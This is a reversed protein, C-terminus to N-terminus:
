KKCNQVHKRRGSYTCFEKPCKPCKFFGLRDGAVKPHEQKLHINLETRQRFDQGCKECVFPREKNKCTLLHDKLKNSQSFVKNCRTCMLGTNMGHKDHQHKLVAALEDHGFSCTPIVCYNCWINLHLTRFHTWMSNRDTSIFSCDYEKGGEVVRGSCSFNEKHKQGIHLDLYQKNEFVKGCVCQLALLKISKRHALKPAPQTSTDATLTSAVGTQSRTTMQSPATAMTTTTTTVTMSSEGTTATEATTVTESTGTDTKSKKPSPECGKESPLSQKRSHGTVITDDQPLPVDETMETEATGFKFNCSRGVSDAAELHEIMSKLGSKLLSKKPVLQSLQKLGQLANSVKKLMPEGKRIIEAVCQPFFPTFHNWGNYLLRIKFDEIPINRDEPICYEVDFTYYPTSTGSIHETPRILLIPEGLVLQAAAVYFFIGAKMDKQAILDLVLEKYSRTTKQLHCKLETVCKNPKTVLLEVIADKLQEKGYTEPVNDLCFLVSQFSSLADVKSTPMVTESSYKQLLHQRAQESYNNQGSHLLLCKSTITQEENTMVTMERSIQVKKGKHHEEYITGSLNKVVKNLQGMYHSTLEEYEFDPALFGREKWKQLVEAHETSITQKQRVM